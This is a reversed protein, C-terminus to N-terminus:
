PTAVHIGNRQGLAAVGGLRIISGALDRLGGDVGQELLQAVAWGRDIRLWPVEDHGVACLALCTQGLARQVTKGVVRGLEEIRGM